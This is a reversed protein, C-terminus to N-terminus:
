FIFIFYFSMFDGYKCSFFFLTSIALKPGFAKSLTVLIYCPELFM